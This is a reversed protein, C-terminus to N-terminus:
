IYINFIYIYKYIKTKANSFYYHYYFCIRKKKKKKKKKDFSYIKIIYIM